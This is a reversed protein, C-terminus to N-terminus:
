FANGLPIISSREFTDWMPASYKGGYERSELFKTKMYTFDDIGMLLRNRYEDRDESFLPNVSLQNQGYSIALDVADYSYSKARAPNIIGIVVYEDSDSPESLDKMVGIYIGEEPYWAIPHKNSSDMCAVKRPLNDISSVVFDRNGNSVLTEINNSDYVRLLNKMGNLRCYREFDKGAVSPAIDDDLDFYVREETIVGEVGRIRIGQITSSFDSTLMVMQPMIFTSQQPMLEAEMFFKMSGVNGDGMLSIVTREEELSPLFLMQKEVSRSYAAMAIKAAREPDAEMVKGIKEGNPLSFTQTERVVVGTKNIVQTFTIECDEAYFHDVTVEKESGTVYTENHVVNDTSVNDSASASSSVNVVTSMIMLICLALKVIKSIM